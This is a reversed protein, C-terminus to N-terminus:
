AATKRRHDQPNDTAHRRRALSLRPKERPHRAPAISFLAACPFRPRGTRNKSNGRKTKSKFACRSSGKSLSPSWLGKTAVLRMADSFCASVTPLSHANKQPLEADSTSATFTDENSKKFQGKANRALLPSQGNVSRRNQPAAASPLGCRRETQNCKLM